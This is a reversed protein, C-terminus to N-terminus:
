LLNRSAIPTLPSAYLLYLPSSLTVCIEERRSLLANLAERVTYRMEMHLVSGLPSVNLADGQCSLWVSSRGSSPSQYLQSSSTLCGVNTTTNSTSLTPRRTTWSVIPSAASMRYRVSRGAAAADATSRRASTMKACF